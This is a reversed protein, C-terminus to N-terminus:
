ILACLLCMIRKRREDQPREKISQFTALSIRWLCIASCEMEDCLLRLNQQSSLPKKYIKCDIEHQNCCCLCEGPLEWSHLPLLSPLNCTNAAVQIDPM